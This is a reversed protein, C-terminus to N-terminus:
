VQRHVKLVIKYRRKNGYLDFKPFRRADVAYNFRPFATEHTVVSKSTVEADEGARYPIPMQLM